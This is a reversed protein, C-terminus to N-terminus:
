RGTQAPEVNERETREAEGGREGASGYRKLLFASYKAVQAPTGKYIVNALRDLEVASITHFGTSNILKYLMGVEAARVVGREIGGPTAASLMLTGAKLLREGFRPAQGIKRIGTATMLDETSKWFSFEKMMRALSPFQQALERRIANAGERQALELSKMSPDLQFGKVDAVSRDLIRRLNLLSDFDVSRGHARVIGYIQMARRYATENVVIRKGHSVNTFVNAYDRIAKLIGQMPIEGRVTEVMRETTPPAGPIGARGPAGEAPPPMPREMERMPRAVERRPFGVAEIRPVVGTETVAPTPPRTPPVAPIEPEGPRTIRGTRGTPYFTQASEARATEVAEDLKRGAQELGSSVKEVLGERTFAKIRRQIMEPVIKEAIIKYQTGGPELARGYLRRAEARLAKATPGAAEAAGTFAGGIAATKLAERGSGTQAAGILGAKAAEAAARAAMGKMGSIAKLKGAGPIPLFFEGAQELGFGMREYPSEGPRILKQIEPKSLYDERGLLRQFAGGTTLATSLLGRGAGTLLEAVVPDGAWSPQYPKPAAKAETKAAAEDAAATVRKFRAALSNGRDASAAEEAERVRKFRSKLDDAM